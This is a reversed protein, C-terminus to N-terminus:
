LEMVLKKFLEGRQAFNRFRDFSACAPSLVITDGYEALSYARNVASEFDDELYIVPSGSYKKSCLIANHIKDATDGTLVVAKSNICLEDALNDFPIEKDYGGAIIILPSSFSHLCAITRSPSSAISDNIFDIGNINRVFELRHEVGSFNGSVRRMKDYPVMGDVASYAALYNLANHKGQLKIDSIDQIVIEEGDSIRLVENDRLFYGRSINPNESFWILESVAEDSFSSCLTDSNNLVLRCNPRQNKFIMKKAEVYDSFSRHMDLHNPSINTIVAVDPVCYMSHLQFSSLELVAIDDAKIKDLEPLLPHGINGGLHVTYGAESLLEAIITSTTTKGDSGTVAITKCPCLRFFLEMESSIEAGQEKAQLLYPNFPLIGPTRFILDKNATGSLYDEGLCFSIGMKSFEKFVYGLDDSSRKDCVTIDKCGGKLLLRVLPENSVGLGIVAISKEKLASIYKFLSM